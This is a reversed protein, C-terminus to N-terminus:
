SAFNIDLRIRYEYELYIGRVILKKGQTEMVVVTAQAVM